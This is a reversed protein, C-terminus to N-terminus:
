PRRAVAGLWWLSGGSSSLHLDDADWAGPHVVAPLADASPPVIELGDFFRTIYERDRLRFSATSSAFTEIGADILRRPLGTCTGHTLALYSGPALAEVYRRVLSCPDADDAVFHLVATMLLGVPRTLDIVTRLEPSDLISAPDRVDATLVATTGDDALLQASYARVMPDIDVYLVHAGPAARRVVEHTNGVTPLGSGVDIFQRIGRLALWRAVRQHFSRNAWAADEADPSVARLQELAARDSPFHHTGGLMLDYMRAPSPVAPDVGPPIAAADSQPAQSTM